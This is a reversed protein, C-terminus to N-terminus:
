SREHRSPAVDASLAVQITLSGYDHSGPTAALRDVVEKVTDERGQSNLVLLAEYRHKM